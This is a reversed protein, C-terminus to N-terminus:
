PGANSATAASVGGLGITSLFGGLSPLPNGNSFNAQQFLGGGTEVLTGAQMTAPMGKSSQGTTMAYLQILDRVQPSQIAVDLNGGFTQKATDLIQQLIGQDNVDIGYTAKIKERLKEKASKIFLRITGAVAGAVAGI